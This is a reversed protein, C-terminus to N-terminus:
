HGTLLRRGRLRPAAHHGCDGPEVRYPVQPHARVRERGRSSLRFGKVDGVLCDQRAPALAKPSGQTATSSQGRLQAPGHFSSLQQLARNLVRLHKQRAKPQQLARNLVRLHKQTTTSSQGRLQALADLAPLHCAPLLLLPCIGSAHLTSVQAGMCASACFRVCTYAPASSMLLLLLPASPPARM